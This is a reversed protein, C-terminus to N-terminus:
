EVAIGSSYKNHSIKGDRVLISGVTKIRKICKRAFAKNFLEVLLDELIKQQEPTALFRGLSEIFEPLPEEDFFNEGGVTYCTIDQGFYEDDRLSHSHDIAHITDESILWNGGHRDFNNIMMDFLWMKVLTKRHVKKLREQEDHSIECFMKADPIFEQMSGM